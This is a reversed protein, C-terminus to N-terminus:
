RAYMQIYNEAQGAAGTNLGLHNGFGRANSELASVDNCGACSDQPGLAALSPDDFPCAANNTISWGPGFTNNNSGATPDSCTAVSRSEHDGLNFYLDTDCLLTQPTLTGGTLEHGNGALAFDCVPYEVGALFSGFDGSGDGVDGYAATIGSPQHVFLLARFPLAHYAPSKFDRATDGLDGIPTTDTTMRTRATITWTDAGDDSSVFLLTWGGGERDMDCFVEFPAVAGVDDPDITYVGTGTAPALALLDACSRARRCSSGDGFFGANCACLHGGPTNTCTADPSCDHSPQDAACEDIDACSFGDGAYGADCQCFIPEADADCSANVDCDACSPAPTSDPAAADMEVPAADREVPTADEGPTPPLPTVRCVDDAGCTQGPPCTQRGSCPIGQPYEPAFCAGLLMVLALYGRFVAREARKLRHIVLESRPM